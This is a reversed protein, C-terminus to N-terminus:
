DHLGGHPDLPLASIRVPSRVSLLGEAGGPASLTIIHVRQARDVPHSSRPACVRNVADSGVQQPGGDLGM